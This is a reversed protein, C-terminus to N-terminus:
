FGMFMDASAARVGQTETADTKKVSISSNKLANEGRIEDGFEKQLATYM